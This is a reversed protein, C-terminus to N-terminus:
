FPNVLDVICNAIDDAKAVILTEAATQTLYPFNKSLGEANSKIWKAIASKVDDAIGEQIKLEEQILNKLQRRTIKM